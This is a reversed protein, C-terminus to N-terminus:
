LRGPAHLYPVGRKYVSRFITKSNDSHIKLRVNPYLQHFNKLIEPLDYEDVNSSVGLRLEGHIEGGIESLQDKLKQLENSMKKAYQALCRGEPTFKIERRGRVFIKIGFQNELQNLRYTLAPQSTHLKQAARSINKKKM